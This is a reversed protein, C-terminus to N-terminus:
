FQDLADLLEAFEPHAEIISLARQAAQARQNSRDADALAQYARERVPTRRLPMAPRAQTANYYDKTPTNCQDVSAGLGGTMLRANQEREDGYAM